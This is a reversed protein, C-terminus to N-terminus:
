AQFSPQLGPSHVSPKYKSPDCLSFMVFTFHCPLQLLMILYFEALVFFAILYLIYAVFNDIYSIGYTISTHFYSYIFLYIVKDFLVNVKYIDAM